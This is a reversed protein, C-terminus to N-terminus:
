LSTAAKLFAAIKAIDKQGPASEVGSSVDVFRAGTVAIADAVNGADLGGALIWPLPHVFGDLLSWDFRMGTGGPLHSGKPPKADYLVRSVAGSFRSSLELDARTKVPIAKWVDGGLSAAFAPTENGHLQITAIGVARVANVESHDPDVLLGVPTVHSPLRAVMSAAQEHSVHRPSKVFFNLGVHSAGGLIAADLAAPTSVGCIKTQVQM